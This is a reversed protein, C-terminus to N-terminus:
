KKRRWSSFCMAIRQKRPRKPDRRAMTRVCRSIFAAKKEGKRPKPVPMNNHRRPFNPKKGTKRCIKRRKGRPM